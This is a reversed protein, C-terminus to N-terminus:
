FPIDKDTPVAPSSTPTAQSEVNPEVEKKNYHRMWGNETEIFYDKNRELYPVYDKSIELPKVNAIEPLETVTGIAAYKTNSKSEEHVVTLYAQRSVLAGYSGLWSELEAGSLGGSWTNLFKGINSKNSTISVPKGSAYLVTMPKTDIVRVGGDSLLEFSVVMQTIVEKDGTPKNNEDTKDVENLHFFVEACVAQYKGKPTLNNLKSAPTNMLDNINM